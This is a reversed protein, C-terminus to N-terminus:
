GILDAALDCFDIYYGPHHGNDALLVDTGEIFVDNDLNDDGLTDVTFGFRLGGRDRMVLNGDSDRIVFPQGVEMSEFRYVTGEVNVIHLDKYMGSGDRTFWAGTAPNTYVDRFDYNDFLYPTPDGRRGEKLMFLGHFTTTGEILFGCDDFSFSDTGSYHERVLPAADAPDVALASGAVIAVGLALKRISFTSM